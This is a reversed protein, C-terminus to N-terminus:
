IKLAEIRKAWVRLKQRMIEANRSILKWCHPLNSSIKISVFFKKRCKSSNFTSLFLKVFKIIFVLSAEANVDFTKEASMENRLVEKLILFFTCFSFLKEWMAREFSNLFPIFNLMSSTAFNYFNMLFQKQKRDKRRASSKEREWMLTNMQSFHFPPHSPQILISLKNKLTTSFM